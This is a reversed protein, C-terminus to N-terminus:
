CESEAAMVLGVAGCGLGACGLGTAASLWRVILPRWPRDVVAKREYEDVVTRRTVQLLALGVDRAVWSM